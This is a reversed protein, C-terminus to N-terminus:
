PVAPAPEVIYVAAGKKLPVRFVGVSGKIGAQPELVSSEGVANVRVVNGATRVPLLLEADQKPNWAAILSGAAAARAEKDPVFRYCLTGEPAAVPGSLKRGLLMRALTAYAVYAPKPHFDRTVIGMNHEFYLPDDGDNRFDYWFTRPEVGSVVSCLYSRAILEAQARQTNPQFDQGMANHPVHTAWGM